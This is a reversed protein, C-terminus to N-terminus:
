FCLLLASPLCNALSSCRPSIDRLKGVILYKMTEYLFKTDKM